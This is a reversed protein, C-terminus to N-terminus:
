YMRGIGKSEFRVYPESSKKRRLEHIGGSRQIDASPTYRTIGPM